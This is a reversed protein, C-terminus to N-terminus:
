EQEASDISVNNEVYLEEEGSPSYAKKLFKMAIEKNGEAIELYERYRATLEELHEYKERVVLVQEWIDSRIRKSHEFSSNYEKLLTNYKEKIEKNKNIAEDYDRLETEKYFLDETITGYSYYDGQKLLKKTYANDYYESRYIKDKNDGIIKSIKEAATADKLYFECGVPKYGRIAKDPEKNYTPEKPESLIKIGQEAMELKVMKDVDADSLKLIEQETLEGIKKM